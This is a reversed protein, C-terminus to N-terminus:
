MTQEDSEKKNGINRKSRYREIISRILMEIAVYAITALGLALTFIFSFIIFFKDREGQQIANGKEDTTANLDICLYYGAMLTNVYFYANLLFTETQTM